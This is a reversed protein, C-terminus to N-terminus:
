GFINIKRPALDNELAFFHLMEGFMWTIKLPFGIPLQFSPLAIEMPKGNFIVRIKQSINCKKARSFSRDGRFIFIKQYVKKKFTIRKQRRMSIKKCFGVYRLPLMRVRFFLKKKYIQYTACCSKRSDGSCHVCYLLAAHRHGGSKRM